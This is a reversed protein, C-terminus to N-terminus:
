PLHVPPLDSQPLDSAAAIGFGTALGAAVIVTVAAGWFWGTTYFPKSVEIRGPAVLARAPALGSAFTTLAQGQDDDLRVFYEVHFETDSETWSAPVTGSWSGLKRELALSSYAGSRRYNLRATAVAGRPDTIRFGFELPEGGIRPPSPEEVIGITAVLREREVREIQETIAREEAQVKRFVALIKPSTDAPLEFDPRARLLLRFPAESEVSRGVIALCSAYLVYVDLREEMPLEGDLAQRLLPLSRDFDLNRYHVRAQEFLSREFPATSTAVSLLLAVAFVRTVM